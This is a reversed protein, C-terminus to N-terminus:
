KLMKINQMKCLKLIMKNELMFSGNEWFENWTFINLTSGSGFRETSKDGYHPFLQNCRESEVIEVPAKGANRFIFIYM